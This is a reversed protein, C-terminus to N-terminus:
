RKDFQVTNKEIDVEVYNAGEPIVFYAYRNHSQGGVITEVQGLAPAVTGTYSNRVAEATSGYAYVNNEISSVLFTLWGAGSTDGTEKNKSNYNGTKRPLTDGFYVFVYPNAASQQLTYQRQFGTKLDADHDNANFGGWMWLETVEQTYPNIGAVTNNYSVTKNKPDTDPSWISITKADTDVVIRYVGDAAITWYRSGAATATLAQGFGVAQGDAIEHVDGAPVISLTTAEEFLVPLYLNGAKLEGHWAFVAPNELTPAVETEEAPAASGGLFIKDVEFIQSTPIVTVTQTGFNLTVRYSDAAAILWGADQAGEKAVAAQAEGTVATDQGSAPVITNSDGGYEVPFNVKGASLSGQWTYVTGNSSQLEVPTSGAASGGLWVKDAAFQVPGFTKVDVVVTSMDPIVIRPGSYSATVNFRLQARTSTSQGFHGTLMDQLEQNTYSRTFIGDDEYESLASAKSTPVDVAYEYTMVFDDGYDYAPTWSVTLAVADPANGDLVVSAASASIEMVSRSRSYTNDIDHRICSAALSALLVIGATQFIKKM